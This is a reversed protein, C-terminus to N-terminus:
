SALRKLLFAVLLGGAFAAGVAVEPRETLVSTGGADSSGFAPPATAAPEYPLPAPEPEPEPLPTPPPLPAPEPEPTEAAPEPEPEPELIPEPEPEPAPEPEPELEKVVAVPEATETPPDEAIVAHVETPASEEGSADGGLPPLPLPLAARESTNQLTPADDAASDTEPTKDTM